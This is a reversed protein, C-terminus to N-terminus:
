RRGRHLFEEKNCIYINYKRIQYRVIWSLVKFLKVLIQDTGPSNYRKFKPIVMEVAFINPASALLEVKYV